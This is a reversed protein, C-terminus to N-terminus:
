IFPHGRVSSSGWSSANVRSMCNKLQNAMMDMKEPKKVRAAEAASIDAEWRTRLEVDVSQSLHDFYEISEENNIVARRFKGIM